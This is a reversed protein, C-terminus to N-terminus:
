IAGYRTPLASTCCSARRFRAVSSLRLHREDPPGCWIEAIARDTARAVARVGRPHCALVYYFAVDVTTPGLSSGEGPLLPCGDAMAIESWTESSIRPSVFPSVGLINGAATGWRDAVRAFEIAMAADNRLLAIAAVEAAAGHAVRAESRRQEWCPHVETWMEASTTDISAHAAKARNHRETANELEPLFGDESPLACPPAWAKERDLPAEAFVVKDGLSACASNASSSLEGDDTGTAEATCRVVAPM